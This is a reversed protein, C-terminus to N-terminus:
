EIGSPLLQPLQQRVHPEDDVILVRGTTPEAAM